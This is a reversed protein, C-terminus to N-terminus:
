ARIIKIISRIESSSVHFSPHDFAIPEFTSLDVFSLYGKPYNLVRNVEKITKCQLLPSHLWGLLILSVQFMAPLGNLLIIGWSKALFSAPLTGKGFSTLESFRAKHRQDFSKKGSYKFVYFLHNALKPFRRNILVSLIGKYESIHDQSSYNPKRFVIRDMMTEFVFYAEQIGELRLNSNRNGIKGVHQSGGNNQGKFGPDLDPVSQTISETDVSDEFSLVTEIFRRSLHVHSGSLIDEKILSRMRNGPKDFNQMQNVCLEFVRKNKNILFSINAWLVARLTPPIGKKVMAELSKKDKNSLKGFWFRGNTSFLMERTKKYGGLLAHNSNGPYSSSDSSFCYNTSKNKDPKINKIESVTLPIKKNEAMDDNSHLCYQENQILKTNNNDEVGDEKRYVMESSESIEAIHNPKCKEIKATQNVQHNDCFDMRSILNIWEQELLNEPVIKDAESKTVTQLSKTKNSNVYRKLSTSGGQNSFKLSNYETENQIVSQEEVQDNEDNQAALSYKGPAPDSKKGSNEIQYETSRVKTKYINPIFSSFAPIKRTSSNLAGNPQFQEISNTTSKVTSFVSKLSFKFTNKLDVEQSGFSVASDNISRSTHSQNLYIITDKKKHSEQFDNQFPRAPINRPRRYRAPIRSTPSRSRFRPRPVRPERLEVTLIEEDLKGGNMYDIAKLAQEHTEYDIYAMQTAFKGRRDLPITARKIKGYPAFIEELHAERVRKTLNKVVVTAVKTNYNEDPNRSRNRYRRSRSRSISIAEKKSKDLIIVNPTQESPMITNTEVDMQDIGSDGNVYDINRIPDSRIPSYKNQSSPKPSRSRSLSRNTSKDAKQSSRNNVSSVSRSVSRSRSSHRIPSRSYKRYSRREPSSRRRAYRSRSYSSRSSSRTPSRARYSGRKAYNQKFRPNYGRSRSRSYRRPSRSRDSRSRSPSRVKPM